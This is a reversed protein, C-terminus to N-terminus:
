YWDNSGVGQRPEQAQSYLPAPPASLGKGTSLKPTTTPGLMSKMVDWQAFPDSGELEDELGTEFVLLFRGGAQVTHM